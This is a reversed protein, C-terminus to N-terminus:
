YCPYGCEKLWWDYRECIKSSLEPDLSTKWDESETGTFHRPHLLSDSDYKTSNEPPQFKNAKDWIIKPDVSISIIDALQTITAEPSSILDEYKIMLDAHRKASNYHAMHKEVLQITPAVGISRQASVLVTRIDRFTYFYFNSRLRLVPRPRHVKILFVQGQPLKKFDGVWGSSIRDAKEQLMGRLINFLLTSGSRPMGGSLVVPSNGFKRLMAIDLIVRRLPNRFM